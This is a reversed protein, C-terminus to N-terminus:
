KIKAVKGKNREEVKYFYLLQEFSSPSIYDCSEDWGKVFSSSEDHLIDPFKFCIHAM